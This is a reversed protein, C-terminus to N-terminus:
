GNSGNGRVTPCKGLSFMVFQLIDPHRHFRIIKHYQDITCVCCIYIYLIYIACIHNLLQSDVVYLYRWSNRYTTAWIPNPWKCPPLQVHWEQAPLTGHFLSSSLTGIKALVLTPIWVIYPEPISNLLSDLLWWVDTSLQVMLFEGWAM